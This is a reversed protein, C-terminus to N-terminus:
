ELLKQLNKEFLPTFGIEATKTSLQITKSNPPIGVECLMTIKSGPITL